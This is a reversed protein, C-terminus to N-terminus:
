PASGTTPPAKKANRLFEVGGVGPPRPVLVDIEDGSVTKDTQGDAGVLWYHEDIWLVLNRGSGVDAGFYPVGFETFDRDYFMISEPPHAKLEDLVHTPQFELEALTTPVRLHYNVAIGEPFVVLTKAHPSAEQFSEELGRLIQGNFLVRPGFTYFHDRGQGVEYNKDAYNHLSARVCEVMGVLVLASFVVPLLLNAKPSGPAPRAAEVVMLHVLWLAALPMMFFGFHYIRGNLVMRALMLAVAVGVVALGLSRAWDARNTWAAWVSWGVAAVAALIVPFVVARGIELWHDAHYEALWGGLGGVAVTCGLSMWWGASFKPTRTWWRAAAAMVGCVLVLIAGADAQRVFNAWPQDFGFFGQQVHASMLTRRFRSALVSYPVFDAAMIAYRMGGRILFYFFVPVWLSFFGGALWKLATSAWRGSGRWDVAAPQGRAARIVRVAIYVGLSGLAALLAEPKDLYAVALGLGAVGLWGPRESKLHHVLGWLVVV